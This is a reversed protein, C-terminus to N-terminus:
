KVFLSRNHSTVLKLMEWQSSRSDNDRALHSPESEHM